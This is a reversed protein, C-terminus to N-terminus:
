RAAEGYPCGHYYAGSRIVDRISVCMFTRGSITRQIGHRTSYSKCFYRGHRDGVLNSCPDEGSAGCCEGCRRCLAEYESERQALFKEYEREEM